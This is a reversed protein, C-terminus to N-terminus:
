KWVMVQAVMYKAVAPVDLLAMGMMIKILHVSLPLTMMRRPSIKLLMAMYVLTALERILLM